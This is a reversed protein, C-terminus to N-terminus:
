FIKDIKFPNREDVRKKLYSQKDQPKMGFGEAGTKLKKGRLKTFGALWVQGSDVVCSAHRRIFGYFTYLLWPVYM